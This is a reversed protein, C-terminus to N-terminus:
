SQKKTKKIRNLCHGVTTPCCTRIGFRRYMGDAACLERDSLPTMSLSTQPPPPSAARSMPTSVLRDGGPAGFELVEVEGVALVQRVGPDLRDGGPAGFELM